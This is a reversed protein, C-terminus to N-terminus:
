SRLAPIVVPCKLMDKMKVLWHANHRKVNGRLLEADGGWVITQFPSTGALFKVLESRADGMKVEAKVALGQGRVSRMHKHLEDRIRADLGGKAEVHESSSKLTDPSLIMLFFLDSETRKALEASYMVAESRIDMSDVLLMIQRVM